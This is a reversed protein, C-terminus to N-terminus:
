SVEINHWGPTVGEVYLHRGSTEAKQSKGDLRVTAAAPNLRPLGVRATVGQPVHVKLKFSTGPEHEYAVSVSGTALPVKGSAHKLYGPQPEILIKGAGPEAPRVGLVFRGVINAPAAGWAHNWDLNNKYKIDWAELTMTSGAAIMNYWGRDHQATMLDLAHDAEGHLYLLELLYQAGYVSCAMGKSKIFSLVSPVRDAPVLGHALMFMNSHLSAHDSDPGDLYRGRGQDFMQENIAAAARKAEQQYDLSDDPRGVADAIRAMLGLAHAYFANVVTNVPRMEHNDREGTGGQTFSGPPWDVLDKLKEHVVGAEVHHNFADRMAPTWTDRDTSILGDPRALFSLTKVALVDYFAELSATEGTYFYDAWAILVSHLHWETPWTPRQMMYEHTHRAVTYEQDVCYHCLQNIYSDAEYPIRERDGDVYVGCFTTAKITHKCLQWVQDLIPSSSEFTAAHDDFPCQVAVQWVDDSSLASVGEIEAYRFPLVEGIDPPMHIAAPGTNREDPPIVVRCTEAHPDTPQEIRRYRITGGPSRDIRGDATRKEGLHIIVSARGPLKEGRIVLTGFAALGFDIFVGDPTPEILTPTVLREVLQTRKTTFILPTPM